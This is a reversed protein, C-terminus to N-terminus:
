PAIRFFGETIRQFRSVIILSERLLSYEHDSLQRPTIYNDPVEGKQMKTMADRIRLMMLTEYAFKVQEADKERLVRRKKLEDLREFTNTVTLGEQLAFVRTCDVIHVCASTKLNIQNRHKGSHVTQVQRFFTLPVQKELNDKVLHYLFMSYETVKKYVFSRLLDYLWSAGYVSRFDLFITMMRVEISHVAWQEVNESWGRLSHCWAPNNAMVKGKCLEFGYRELGNVVKDGLILFYKKAEEEREADTDAFIIGNDQDTRAFQEKRGSSGMTIWCYELPPPGYGEAIMEKEAMEIVKRTIRDYFETILSTIERVNAREVLLAQLVQDVETRLKVLADLSKVAEIDNVIAFSGTKRSKIVDRMAVIGQIKEEEDLIIIHKVRHKVMLLFAEHTFDYRGLSILGSTMLDKAKLSVIDAPDERRLVRSVLDGETIIGQPRGDDDAVVISSINNTDMITAILSVTDEPGCTVVDTVMIDELRKNFGGGVQNDEEDYFKQYLVRMRDALLRAIYAAFGSNEEYLQTAVRRPLLYCYTEELARASAPYNENSLFVSEGMTESAGRFNTVTENGNKDTVFIEVRGRIILFLAHRSPKGQEMFIEGASYVEEDLSDAVKKLQEENLFSFPKINKLNAVRVDIKKESVLMFSGRGPALDQRLFDHAQKDKGPM